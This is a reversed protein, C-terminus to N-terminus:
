KHGPRRRRDAAMAVHPPPKAHAGAPVYHQAEERPKLRRDQHAWGEAILLRAESPKLDFVDGPAHGRLDVDDIKEALKKTLRVRVPRVPMPETLLCDIRRRILRPQGASSSEAERRGLGTSVRPGSGVQPM